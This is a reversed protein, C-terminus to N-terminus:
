YRAKASVAFQKLNIKTDKDAVESAPLPKVDYFYDSLALRRLFEAVDEGDRALGEIKVSRDLETYKMIWLRRPDWNPNPVATPNDRKLQELKDKDTSPGRGVTLVKSLELLASTPGTRAAQLKQIAEERDRLEQLQTKIQPHDSTDKKIKDISAQVSGNDRTIEALADQKSRHFFILVLLQVLVVGVVALIWGQGPEM